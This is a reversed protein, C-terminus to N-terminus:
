GHAARHLYRHAVVKRRVPEVAVVDLDQPLDSLMARANAPSLTSALRDLADAVTEQMDEVRVGPTGGEAHRRFASRRAQVCIQEITRGSLIQRAAVTRVTGDRFRLEAIANDANPSYLTGVAAEIIDERTQDAETGNPGYPLTPPLHIAFIERAAELGPRGIYLEMGSLRELLAQDILDKRNTSAIIGLSGRPRELGDIETLWASLFKDGHHGGPGGRIRGIADVEDIFLLTPRPDRNLERFLERINQQTTGVWPSELQAGKVSAFRCQEGTAAALASGAVRAISTKGNGPPGHLLLTNGRTLGYRAAVEPQAISQTFLSVAQDVESALGGLRQSPQASLYETVFLESPAGGQVPELALMLERSWRVSEGPGLDADRVAQATHVLVQVDRDRLALRGDNLMREVTAIEGTEPLEARAVGLVANLEHGLYVVQGAVLDDVSVDEGLRVLRWSGSHFVEALPGVSTEVRRLFVVPFWPPATHEDLLKRLEAQTARVEELDQKLSSHRASLAAYRELLFKDLAENMERSRKRREGILALRAALRDRPEPGAPLLGEFDNTDTDTSM